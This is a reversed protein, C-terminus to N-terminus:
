QLEKCFINFKSVYSSIDFHKRGIKYSSDSISEIKDSNKLIWDFKAMLSEQSFDDCILASEMDKFIRAPEGFKTTIIVSHSAAYECVKNPFRAIDQITERLPILLFKAKKYEKILNDYPLSTYIEIFPYKEKVSNIDNMNGSLVM